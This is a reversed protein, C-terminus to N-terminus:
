STFVKILKSQGTGKPKTQAIALLPMPYPKTSGLALVVWPQNNTIELILYSTPTNSRRVQLTWTKM